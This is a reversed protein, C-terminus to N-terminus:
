LTKERKEYQKRSAESFGAALIGTPAAILGVGIVASIGALIKGLMTVPYVDGYGITTLTIVAWWLARPISGFAEPQATSEAMYLLSATILMAVLSMLLSAILEYKKQQIVDAIMDYARFVHGIRSLRIIRLLRFLRLLYAPSGGIFILAPLLSLIDLIAIPSAIYKLRGWVPHSYCPELVCVWVRILYEIAFVSLLVADLLMFLDHYRVSLMRETDLVATIISIVILIM